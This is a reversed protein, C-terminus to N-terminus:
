PREAPVVGNQKLATEPARDLPSDVV